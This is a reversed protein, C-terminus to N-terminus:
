SISKINLKYFIYYCNTIDVEITNEKKGIRNYFELTKKRLVCIYKDYAFVQVNEDKSITISKVKSQSVEKNIIKEDCWKRFNVNYFYVCTLIITTIIILIFILLITFKIVRNRRRNQLENALFDKM